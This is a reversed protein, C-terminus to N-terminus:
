RARPHGPGRSQAPRIRPRDLDLSPLSLALFDTGAGTGLRKARLLHIALDTLFADDWPSQEWAGVFESDPQGSASILPHPFTRGWPAPRAEGAADDTFRYAGPPLCRRGSRATPTRSRIRAFSSTWKPGRRRPTRTRRPGRATTKRGSRSRTRDARARSRSPPGPSRASRSSRRRCARRAGSNTPSRRSWCRVRATASAASAAARVAGVHGGPRLRLERDPALARDYFTNGSM